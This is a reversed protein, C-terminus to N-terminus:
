GSGEHYEILESLFVESDRICLRAYEQIDELSWQADPVRKLYLDVAVRNLMEQRNNALQARRVAQQQLPDSPLLVRQPPNM